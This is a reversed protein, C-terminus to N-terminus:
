PMSWYLSGTLNVLLAKACDVGLVVFDDHM